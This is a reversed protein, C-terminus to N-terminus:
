CIYPLLHETMPYVDYYRGPSELYRGNTDKLGSPARSNVFLWLMDKLNAPKRLTLTVSETSAHVALRKLPVPRGKRAGLRYGRGIDVLTYNHLDTVSARDMPGDFGLILKHLEGKKETVPQILIIAPELKPECLTYTRNVEVTFPATTTQIGASSVQLTYGTGPQDLTLGSFVAVGNTANATLTGGLAAGGPNAALSITLSGNFSTVVNGQGDEVAATVSFPIGVFVFGELGAFAPPHTIVLQSNVANNLSPSVLRVQPGIVSVSSAALRLEM